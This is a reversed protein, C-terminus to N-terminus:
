WQGHRLRKAVALFLAAAVLALPCASAPDGTQPIVNDTTDSDPERPTPEPPTPEPNVTVVVFRAAAEGDDFLAKLMHTGGNLTELYDAKLAVVVSGPQADYSGEDLAVDDVMLGVFHDFTTEDDGVRKFTFTLSESAGKTWSQGHGSAVYYTGPVMVIEYDESLTGAFNGKGTATVSAAGPGLYDSWSLDYDTGEVLVRGNWTLVPHPQVEMGTYRQDPVPSMEAEELPAPAISWVLERAGTSGDVWSWRPDLTAVATYAGADTAEGGTVTYGERTNVGVQPAGTYVLGTAAIPDAEVPRRRVTLTGAQHASFVYNHASGGEPTLVYREGPSLVAPTEMTPAVYDAATEATEDGVFGTVEVAYTPVGDWPIVEDLYRAVLEAPVIRFTTSVEGRVDGIGRLTLTAMGVDRNNAYTAEYDIGEMMIGDGFTVFAGPMIDRGAYTQDAIAHVDAHELNPDEVIEFHGSQQGCYDGVGEITIFGTGPGVNYEWKVVTYDQNLELMLTDRRGHVTVRAPNPTLPQGTWRKYGVLVECGAAVSSLDMPRIIFQRATRGSFNGRGIVYMTATGAHVCDAYGYEFDKGEILIEDGYRVLPKPECEAGDYTFPDIPGVQASMIPAAVITFAGRVYRVRYNGQRESGSPTIDYRGVDQGGSRSLRYAVTDTGVCGEVKATLRPDVDGYTKTADNATVTVNKPLIEFDRSVSGVCNKIGTITVTAIGANTNRTYTVKYDRDKVFTIGDVTVTPVPTIASGTYSYTAAIGGITAKSLDRPVIKFSVTQSDKVNATTKAPAITATARNTVNVNNAYEWSIDGKKVSIEFDQKYRDRLTVQSTPKIPSGTYVQDPISLVKANKLSQPEIKITIPGLSGTFNCNQVDDTSLTLTAQGVDTHNESYALKYDRGEVLPYGEGGQQGFTTTLTPKPEWAKRDWTFPGLDGSVTADGLKAQKITFTLTRAVDSKFRTGDGVITIQADDGANTNNATGTVSYDDKTLVHFWRQGSVTPVIPKGCFTLDGSAVLDVNEDTLPVAKYVYPYTTSGFLKRGNALENESWSGCTVTLQLNEAARGEAADDAIYIASGDGGYDPMTLDLLRCSREGVGAIDFAFAREGIYNVGKPLKVTTRGESSWAGCNRFAEKGISVLSEPLLVSELQDCWIDSFVQYTSFLGEPLETVHTKSLNVTKLIQNGALAYTGLTKVSAPLTLTEVRTMFVLANHGIYELRYNSSNFELGTLYQGLVGTAGDGISSVYITGIKAPVNVTTDSGGIMRINAMGRDNVEYIIVAYGNEMGLCAPFDQSYTGHLLYITMFPCGRFVKPDGADVSPADTSMFSVESLSTCDSFAGVGLSTLSSPFTFSTLGACGKFATKGIRTLGLQVTADYTVEKISTGVFASEGIETIYYPVMFTEMAKCGYFCEKPIVSIGAYSADVSGATDDSAEMDVGDVYNFFVKTLKTFGKFAGPQLTRICPPLGVMMVSKKVDDGSADLGVSVVPRGVLEEPVSFKNESGYYCYVTAETQEDNVTFGWSGWDGREDKDRYIVTPGSEDYKYPGLDPLEAWALRAGPFAAVLLSALLLLTHLLVRWRAVGALGRGDTQMSM